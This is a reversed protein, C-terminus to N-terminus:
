QPQNYEIQSTKARQKDRSKYKELREMNVKITDMVSIEEELKDTKKKSDSFAKNLEALEARWAKPTLKGEETFLKKFANRAGIFLTIEARHEDYFKAKKKQNSISEYELFVAKNPKYKEYNDLLEALVKARKQKPFLEAKIKSLETEAMALKESLQEATSIGNGQLFAVASSVDKLKASKKLMGVSRGRAEDFKQGNKFYRLLKAVLNEDESIKEHSKLWASLEKIRNLLFNMLRNHKKIERNINGVETSIGRREMQTAAVGMHITPEFPLGQREYSRHDVRESIKNEELANNLFESWASRREEAKERSNWDTTSVSKCKYQRKKKDYIKNGNRDLIYEKKQKEGWTGDENIPRMTLMIHAHINTQERTPNHICLDACMGKEVFTQRVFNRALAINQELSLENSLSIEIERALQSNKAKEVEEVANWLTSRDSFERPAHDPM